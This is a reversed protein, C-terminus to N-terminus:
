VQAQAAEAAPAASAAAKTAQGRGAQSQPPEPEPELETGAEAEAERDVGADVECQDEAMAAEEDKDLAGDSSGAEENLRVSDGASSANDSAAPSPPGADAENSAGNHSAVSTSTRTNSSPGETTTTTTSPGENSDGNGQLEEQYAANGQVKDAKAEHLRQAEEDVLKGCLLDNYLKDAATLCAILEETVDEGTARAHEQAQRTRQGLRATEANFAIREPCEYGEPMGYEMRAWRVYLQRVREDDEEEEWQDMATDM